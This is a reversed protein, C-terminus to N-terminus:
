LKFSLCIEDPAIARVGLERLKTLTMTDDDVVVLESQKCNFCDTFRSVDMRLDTKDSFIIKCFAKDLHHHCLTDRVRKEEASTWLMFHASLRSRLLCLADANPASLQLNKTYHWRKRELLYDREKQSLEPYQKFVSARTLRNLGNIQPLNIDQLASNYAFNNLANTHVLTNDFDFVIRETM